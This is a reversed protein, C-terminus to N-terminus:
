SKHEKFDLESKRKFYAAIKKYGEIYFLEYFLILIIGLIFAILALIQQAYVTTGFLENEKNQVYSLLYAAALTSLFSAVGIFITNLAIATSQHEYPVFEFLANTICIAIASHGLNSFVGYITYMYIGTRPTTFVLGLLSLTFLPYGIRLINDYSIKRSIKGFLVAGFVYVLSFCFSATSILTMSFGLEKIRYTGLFPSIISSMLGSLVTIVFYRLYKKNRMLYALSEKSNFKNETKVFEKEKSFLLTFLNIIAITFTFGSLLLFASSINGSEEFKDIMYAIALSVTTGAVTDVIKAISIFSGRSERPILNMYWTTKLPNAISISIKSALMAFFFIFSMSTSSLNFFPILYLTAYTIRTFFSFPIVWRKYPPKHSIYITFFQAISALSALAELIATMGDSIGIASTLKALYSGALLINFFNAFMLDLCYFVKSLKYKDYESQKLSIETNM